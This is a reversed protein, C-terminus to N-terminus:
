PLELKKLAEEAARRVARCRDGAARRLENTAAAAPKGLLGLALAARERKGPEDDALAARLAPVASEGIAALAQMAHEGPYHPTGGRGYFNGGVIFQENDPLLEILRPIASSAAPGFKGLVDAADARTVCDDFQCLAGLAAVTEPTRLSVARLLEASRVRTEGDMRIKDFVEVAPDEVEYHLGAVLLEVGPQAEKGLTSWAAAAEDHGLYAWREPTDRLGRALEVIAQGKSRDIKVIAAALIAKACPDSERDLERVLLPLSGAARPGLDGLGRAATIKSGEGSGLEAQFIGLLSKHEPAIRALAVAAPLRQVSDSLLPELAPVADAANPGLWRLVEVLSRSIRRDKKLSDCLVPVIDKAEAGIERLAAVIQDGLAFNSGIGGSAPFATWQGEDNLLAAL